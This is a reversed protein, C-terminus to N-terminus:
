EVGFRSPQHSNARSAQEAIRIEYDSSLIEPWSREFGCRRGAKGTRELSWSEASERRLFIQGRFFAFFVFSGDGFDGYWSM